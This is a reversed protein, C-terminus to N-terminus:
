AIRKSVQIEEFRAPTRGDGKGVLRLSVSSGGGWLWIRRSELMEMEEEEDSEETEESSVSSESQFYSLSLPGVAALILARLALFAPLSGLSISWSATLSFIFSVLCLLAVSAQLSYQHQNLMLIRANCQCPGPANQYDSPKPMQNETAREARDSGPICPPFKESRLWWGDVVVVSRVIRVARLGDISAM